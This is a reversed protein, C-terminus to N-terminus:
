VSLEETWLEPTPKVAAIYGAAQMNNKCLRAAAFTERYLECKVLKTKDDESKVLKIGIVRYKV